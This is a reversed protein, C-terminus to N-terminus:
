IRYMLNWDFPMSSATTTTKSLRLTIDDELAM